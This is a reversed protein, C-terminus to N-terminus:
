RAWGIRIELSLRRRRNRLCTREGVPLHRPISREGQHEPPGITLTQVPAQTADFSGYQRPDVMLMAVINAHIVVGSCVATEAGISDGM